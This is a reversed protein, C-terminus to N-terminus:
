FERSNERIEREQVRRRSENEREQFLDNHFNEIDMTIRSVDDRTVILESVDCGFKKEMEIAFKSYCISEDFISGQMNYVKCLTHAINHNHDDVKYDDLLTDRMDIIEGTIPSKLKTMDKNIIVPHVHYRHDEMDKSMYFHIDGLVYRSEADTEEKKVEKDCHPVSIIEETETEEGSHIISSDDESNIGENEENSMLIKFFDVISM